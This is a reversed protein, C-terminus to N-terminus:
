NRQRNSLMWKRKSRKSVHLGNQIHYNDEMFSLLRTLQFWSAWFSSQTEELMQLNIKWVGLLWNQLLKDVSLFNAKLIVFGALFKYLEADVGLNCIWFANKLFTLSCM